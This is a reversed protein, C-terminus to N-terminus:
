QWWKQNLVTILYTMSTYTMGDTISHIALKVSSFNGRGLDGKVEYFGIRRGVTLDRFANWCINLCFYGFSKILKGLGVRMMIFTGLLSTMSHRLRALVQIVARYLTKILCLFSM